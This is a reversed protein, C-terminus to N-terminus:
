FKSVTYFARLHTVLDEYGTIESDMFATRIDRTAETIRYSAGWASTPKDGSLVGHTYGRGILLENKYPRHECAIYIAWLGSRSHVVSVVFESGYDMHPYLEDLVAGKTCSTLTTLLNDLSVSFMPKLSQLISGDKANYNSM